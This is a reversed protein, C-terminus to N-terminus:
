QAEKHKLVHGPDIARILKEIIENFTRSTQTEKKLYIFPTGKDGSKVLALEVPIRGLFAVNLEAAAKEGGGSGFLDIEAACHPCSFGSMNEIVGIFPIHLEKAFVISKRVDLLAVEQPTTVIVAADLGKILQCVSLPEDGTGPPADFILYDLRGWNVDALFEKIVGMKLPGRWIIPQDAGYGLLAVSIVKLNPFLEFPEAGEVSHVLRENNIGLMKAVNPGHLDVDCIGVTYGSLALGYAMNVAVTTKGVGGKGSMVLVKKDILALREDLRKNQEKQEQENM